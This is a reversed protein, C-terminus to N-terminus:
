NQPKPMTLIQLQAVNIDSGRVVMTTSNTGPIWEISAAGFDSAIATLGENIKTPQMGSYDVGDRMTPIFVEPRNSPVDSEDTRVCGLEYSHTDTDVTELESVILEREPNCVASALEVKTNEGLAFNGVSQKTTLLFTGNKQEKVTGEIPLGIAIPAEDQPLEPTVTATSPTETASSVTDTQDPMTEVAKCGILCTVGLGAAALTSVANRVIESM